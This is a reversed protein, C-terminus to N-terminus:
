IVSNFNFLIREYERSVEVLQGELKEKEGELKEIREEQGKLRGKNFEM